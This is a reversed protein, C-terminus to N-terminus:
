LRNLASSLMDSMYRINEDIDKATVYLIGAEPETIERVFQVKERETLEKYSENIEFVHILKDMIDRVITVVEIVTPIGIAIVPIGITQENIGKRHNGVGSGPTIGTDTLQITRNLRRINRAALADIAIVVDPKIEKSVGKIIELSEMGTKAMVGPIICSVKRDCQENIYNWINIKDVTVPGLSDPTAKDNGLGAILITDTKEVNLNLIMKKLYEAVIDAVKAFEDEKASSFLESELTIYTGKPKGMVDAGNDDTISMETVKIRGEMVNHESLRVGKIEVNDETFIERSEVALDTRIKMNM